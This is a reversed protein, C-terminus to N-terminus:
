ASYRKRWALLLGGLAVLAAVSPEPVVQISFTDSTSIFGDTVHTGSWTFEFDCTGQETFGWQFHVHDGPTMTFSNSFVTAGPDYTSFVLDAVSTGELNTTYLVFDVGSPLMWGTITLTIDGSWDAVDLEEVGFGLNPQHASSGAAYITTGDPVGLGVSLGSPSTRTATTRALIDGPAYEEDLLNPNGDVVAGAHLHWHPAFQGADYAVGIDGHGSSYPSQARLPSTFALVAAVALLSSSKKM